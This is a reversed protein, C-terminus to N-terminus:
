QAPNQLRDLIKRDVNFVTGHRAGQPFEVKDTIETWHKLDESTAAGYRGERYCDFYVFWTPGIRIASPGEVWAHPTIPETPQTYPGEARDATAMLILKRPKPNLTEDKFFLLYKDQAKALFGDIVGYGPEFFLKTPSFTEFDRTTVYYMRHNYKDESGGATETFKDPITTSWVILYQETAEDYFVEPAWCNRANPEHMMVPVTKQPSWHILDKSNAYGIVRNHWSTTWVMHFTGDPGQVISPDRMLKHGVAPALYSRGDNLATWTLGDVSSALHLGDEGNGTFYSLLYADDASATATGFLLVVILVRYSM